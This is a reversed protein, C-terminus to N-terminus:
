GTGSLPSDESTDIVFQQELVFGIAYRDFHEWAIEAVRNRVDALLVYGDRKLEPDIYERPSLKQPRTGDDRTYTSFAWYSEGGDQIHDGLALVEYTAQVLVTLAAKLRPLDKELTLREALWSLTMGREPSGFYSPALLTSFGHGEVFAAKLAGWLTPHHVVPGLEPAKVTEETLYVAMAEAVRYEDWDVGSYREQYPHRYHEFWSREQGPPPTALVHGVFRGITQIAEQVPPMALYREGHDLSELNGDVRHAM